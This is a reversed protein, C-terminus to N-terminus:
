APRRKPPMRSCRFPRWAPCAKLVSRRVTKSTSPRLRRNPRISAISRRLRMSPEPSRTARRWLASRRRSGGGLVDDRLCRRLFPHSGRFCRGASDGRPDRASSAKPGVNREFSPRFSSDPSLELPARQAMFPRWRFNDMVHLPRTVRRRPNDEIGSALCWTSGGLWPGVELVGSSGDWVDRGLWYLYQVEEQSIMTPIHGPLDFRIEGWPDRSGSRAGVVSM